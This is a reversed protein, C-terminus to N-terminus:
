APRTPLRLTLSAGGAPTQDIELRGGHEEAIRTSVWLGIESLGSGFDPTPEVDSLRALVDANIGPGNDHFSITCSEASRDLRIQLRANPWNTLAAEANLLLNLVVQLICRRDVSARYPADAAKEVTVAIHARSLTFACLGVAHDVLEALDVLQRGAAAPRTFSSLRALMASVRDTQTAIMQIRHQEVPGLSQKTGLLEAGGSIIQLANNVDHVANSVVRGVIRLRNIEQLAAVDVDLTVRVPIV